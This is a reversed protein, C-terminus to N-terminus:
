QNLEKKELAIISELTQHHYKLAYKSNLALKLEPNITKDTASWDFVLEPYDSTFDKFSKNIVIEAHEFGEEFPSGTKPAAVEVVDVSINKYVLAKHLKYTAILRGSIMSEILLAGLSEFKQKAKLYNEESSCRWCIHDIQCSQLQIQKQTALLDIEELFAQAQNPLERPM